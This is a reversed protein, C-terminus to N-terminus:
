VHARGIKVAWKPDSDGYENFYAGFMEGDRFIKYEVENEQLFKEVRSLHEKLPPYVSIEIVTNTNVLINILEQTMQCILLGNTVIAIYAKPFVRRAERVFRGLDPNLFPEGGLIKLRKINYVLESIANLDRSFASFDTMKGNEYINSYHNCRKCNLNCKESIEYELAGILPIKRDAKELIESFTDCQSLECEFYEPEAYFLLNQYDIGLNYLQCMIKRYVDPQYGPIIIKDVISYDCLLRLANANVVPVKSVIQQKRADNDIFCIVKDQLLKEEFLTGCKKGNKGYGWIAINM